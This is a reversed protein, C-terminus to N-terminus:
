MGYKIKTAIDKLGRDNTNLLVDCIKLLTQKPERSTQIQRQLERVVKSGKDYASYSPTTTIDDYVEKIILRCAFIKDIVRQVIAESGVSASLDAFYGQFVDEPNPEDIKLSIINNYFIRITHSFAEINLCMVYNLGGM